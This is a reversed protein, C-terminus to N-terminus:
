DEDVLPAPWRHRVAAGIHHRFREVPDGATLETADIVPTATEGWAAIVSPAWATDLACVAVDFPGLPCEGRTVLPCVEGELPGSCRTIEFATTRALEAPLLTPDEVLLRV